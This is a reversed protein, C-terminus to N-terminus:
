RLFSPKEAKGYCCKKFKKGPGCPCAEDSQPLHDLFESYRFAYWGYTDIADSVRPMVTEDRDWAGTFYSLAANRVLFDPHSLADKVRERISM